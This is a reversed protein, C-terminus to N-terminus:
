LLVRGWANFTDSTFDASNSSSGGWGTALFKKTATAELLMKFQTAMMQSKQLYDNSKKSLGVSMASDQYDLENRLQLFSESEFIKSLVGYLAIGDYIDSRGLAPYLILAEEYVMPIIMDLLDESFQEMYDLLVNKDAKDQIYEKITEESIMRVKSM